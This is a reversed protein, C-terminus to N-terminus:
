AVAEFDYPLPELRLKPGSVDGLQLAGHEACEILAVALVAYGGGPHRCADALRGRESQRRGAALITPRRPPTPTDVRALYM